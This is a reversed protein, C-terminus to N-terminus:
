VIWSKSKSSLCKLRKRRKGGCSGDDSSWRQHEDNENEYLHFARQRCLTEKFLQLLVFCFHWQILPKSNIAHTRLFIRSFIGFLFTHHQEFCKWQSSAIFFIQISLVWYMNRSVFPRNGIRRRLILRPYKERKLRFSSKVAVDSRLLKPPFDFVM